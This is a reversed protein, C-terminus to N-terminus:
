VGHGSLGAERMAQRPVAAWPCREQDQLLFALCLLDSQRTQADHFEQPIAVFFMTIERLRFALRYGRGSTITSYAVCLALGLSDHLAIDWFFVCHAFQLRWNESDNDVLSRGWAFHAQGCM